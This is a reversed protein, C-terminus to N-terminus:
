ISEDLIKNLKRNRLISKIKEKTDLMPNRHNVLVNDNIKAINECFDYDIDIYYYKDSYFFGISLFQDKSQPYYDNNLISIDVEIYDEEKDIDPFRKIRFVRM